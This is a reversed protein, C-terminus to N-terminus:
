LDFLAATPPTQIRRRHLDAARQQRQAARYCRPCWARLEAEPVAAAQAPPLTLDPPATILRVWGGHEAAYVDHHADCRLGTRSHRNGCAGKCTCRGEAADVVRQWLGTAAIPRTHIDPQTIEFASM